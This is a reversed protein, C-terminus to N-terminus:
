QTVLHQQLYREAMDTTGDESALEPHLREIEQLLHVHAHEMFLAIDREMEEGCVPCKYRPYTM